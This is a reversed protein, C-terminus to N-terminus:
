RDDHGLGSIGNTGPQNRAKRSRASIDGPYSGRSSFKSAFTHLQDAIHQRPRAAHGSQGLAVSGKELGKRSCILSHPSAVPVVILGTLILLLSSSSVAEADISFSRGAATM